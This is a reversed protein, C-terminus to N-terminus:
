HLVQGHDESIETLAFGADHKTTNGLSLDGLTIVGVLKGDEVVPLRRIQHNAMIDAAEEADQEPSVTVLAESMVDKVPCSGPRKAAYGRVVLDRDTVAGILKNRDNEDVVLVFGIDNDAMQVAIEYVNDQLTVTKCHTSMLDRVQKM